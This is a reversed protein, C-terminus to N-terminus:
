WASGMTLRLTALKGEDLGFGAPDDLAILLGVRGFFGTDPQYAFYPEMATQAKDADDNDETVAIAAQFRLGGGVGSSTLAELESGHELIVEIDQALEGVPFFTSPTIDGRYRVTENIRAEAGVGPRFPVYDPLFRHLDVNARTAAAFVRPGLSDSLDQLTTDKSTVLTPIAVEAGLSLTWTSNLPGAWHAGFTPNGFVLKTDGEEPFLSALPLDVDFHVPGSLRMQGTLGYTFVKLKETPWLDIELAVRNGQSRARGPPHESEDGQLPSDAQDQAFATGTVTASFLLALALSAPHLTKM